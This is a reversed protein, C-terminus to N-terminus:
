NLKIGEDVVSLHWSVRGGPVHKLMDLCPGCLTASTAETLGVGRRELFVPMAYSSRSIPTAANKSLGACVGAFHFLPLGGRTQGQGNLGPGKCSGPSAGYMYMLTEHPCTDIGV